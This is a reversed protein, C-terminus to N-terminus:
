VMREIKQLLDNINFPKSIFDEALSETVSDQAALHASLMIIPLDKTRHNRKLRRAIDRGDIGNLLVDLLILDPLTEDAKDYADEGKTTSDVLYGEMELAIQLAEVIASDDDVILIKKKSTLV